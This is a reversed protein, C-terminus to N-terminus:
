EKDGTFTSLTTQNNALTLTLLAGPRVARLSSLMEKVKDSPGVVDLAFEIENPQDIGRMLVRAVVKNETEVDMMKKITVERTWTPKKDAM